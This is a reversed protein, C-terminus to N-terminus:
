GTTQKAWVAKNASFAPLVAAGACGGAQCPFLVQAPSAELTSGLTYVRLPLM